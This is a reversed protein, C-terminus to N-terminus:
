PFSSDSVKCITECLVFRQRIQHYLVVLGSNNTHLVTPILDEGGVKPTLLIGWQRAFLLLM